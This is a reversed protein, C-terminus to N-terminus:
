SFHLNKKTLAGNIQDWHKKKGVILYGRLYMTVFVGVLLM